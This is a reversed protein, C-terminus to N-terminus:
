PIILSYTASYVQFRYHVAYYKYVKNYLKDATKHKIQKYGRQHGVVGMILM